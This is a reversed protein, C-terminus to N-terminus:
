ACGRGVVWRINEWHASCWFIDFFRRMTLMAGARNKCHKITLPLGTGRIRRILSPWQMSSTDFFRDTIGDGLKPKNINLKNMSSM